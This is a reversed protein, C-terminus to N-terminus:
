YGQLDRSDHYYHYENQKDYYADYSKKYAIMNSRMIVNTCSFIFGASCAGSSNLDEACKGYAYLSKIKYFQM